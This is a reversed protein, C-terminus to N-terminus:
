RNGGGFGGRLSPGEKRCLRFHGVEKGMRPSMPASVRGPPAVSRGGAAATQAAIELAPGRGSLVRGRRNVAAAPAGEGSLHARGAASRRKPSGRAVVRRDGLSRAGARRGEGWARLRGGGMRSVLQRSAAGRSESCALVAAAVGGSARRPPRSPAGLEGQILDLRGAERLIRLAEQVRADALPVGM